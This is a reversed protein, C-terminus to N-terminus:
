YFVDKEKPMKLCILNQLFESKDCVNKAHSKSCNTQRAVCANNVNYVYTM